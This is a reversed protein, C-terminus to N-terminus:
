SFSPLEDFFRYNIARALHSIDINDKNELDAMTRSVKLIKHYGRASINKKAVSTEFFDFSKKDLICYKEVDKINMQSNTKITKFRKQQIERAKQVKERIEESKEGESVSSIKRFTERPVNVHLDIRDLLPGSIKKQYRTISSPVCVCKDNNSGFNGCPCPNMAALLTFQAPFRVTRATRSIVVDGDELPQRLSELVSRPFEPLEDLFLVGRHALSIEGPKPITGGGIVAHSSATHHPNRFPRNSIRSFGRLLGSVSFLKTVELSEEDTMKPLISALAKALLTKGSGPPGYMLMNHGGAAAVTLAYKANEQGKISSIDVLNEKGWGSFNSELHEVSSLETERSVNDSNESFVYPQITKENNLHRLVQGLHSVGIIKIGSVLAAEEVNESPVIIESFGKNKAFITVPLVGNVPRVSGDLSLEGIFLLNKSNFEIQSTALMYGLAIPLDFLPGEKKIDAPALNVIIRRNKATYPVFGSNRIASAIRDKSEEVVKSPLGVINFFKLGPTSDVEIDVPIADLGYLTASHIKVPM